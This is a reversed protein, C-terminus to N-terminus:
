KQSASSRLRTKPTSVLIRAVTAVTLYSSTCTATLIMWIQQRQHPKLRPLMRTTRSMRIAQYPRASPSVSPISPQCYALGIIPCQTSLSDLLIRGEKKLRPDVSPLCVVYLEVVKSKGFETLITVSTTQTGAANTPPLTVGDPLENFRTETRTTKKEQDVVYVITAATLTATISQSAWYYREVVEGASCNAVCQRLTENTARVVTTKRDSSINALPNSCVSTSGRSM